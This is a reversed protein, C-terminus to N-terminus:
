PTVPPVTTLAVAGVQHVHEHPSMGIQHFYEEAVITKTAPFACPAPATVGMTSYGETQKASQRLLRESFYSHLM